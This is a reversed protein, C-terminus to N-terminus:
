ACGGEDGRTTSRVTVRVAGLQGRLKEEWPWCPRPRCCYLNFTALGCEPYTHCALHSETLLYLGTLGGPSPFQHWKGEGIVHLELQAVIQDCLDRLVAGDALLDPRCGVADVLWEYGVNM